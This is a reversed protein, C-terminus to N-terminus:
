ATSIVLADFGKVVVQDLVEGLGLALNGITLVVIDKVPVAVTKEGLVIGPGIEGLAVTIGPAM